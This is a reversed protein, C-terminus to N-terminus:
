PLARNSYRGPCRSDQSLNKETEGPLYRPLIEILIRGSTELNKGICREDIKRDNSIIYITTRSPTPFSLVPFCLVTFYIDHLSLFTFTMLGMIVYARSAPTSLVFVFHISSVVPIVVSLFITPYGVGSRTLLWSM